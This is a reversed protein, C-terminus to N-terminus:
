PERGEACWAADFTGTLTDGSPFTLDFSGQAAGQDAVADLSVSGDSASTESPTGTTATLTYAVDAEGQGPSAAGSVPFTDPATGVLKIELAQVADFQTDWGPATIDACEVVADFMEIVITREPDDPAGIRYAAGISDFALGDFSGAITGSGHAKSSVTDQPGNCALAFVIAAVGRTPPAM